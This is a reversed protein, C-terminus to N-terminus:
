SSGLPRVLSMDAIDRIDEPAFAKSTTGPLRRYPVKRKATLRYLTRPSTAFYEAAGEIDLWYKPPTTTPRPEPPHGTETPAESAPLTM